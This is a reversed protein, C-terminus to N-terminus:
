PHHFGFPQASCLATRSKISGGFLSVGMFLVIVPTFLMKNIFTATFLFFLPTPPTIVDTLMNTGAASLSWQSQKEMIAAHPRRDSRLARRKSLAVCPLFHKGQCICTSNGGSCTVGRWIQSVTELLRPLVETSYYPRPCISCTAKHSSFTTFAHPIHPALVNGEILSNVISLLPACEKQKVARLSLIMNNPLLIANM